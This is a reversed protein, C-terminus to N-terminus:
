NCAANLALAGEASTSPGPGEHVNNYDAKANCKASSQEQISGNLGCGKLSYIGLRAEHERRQQRLRIDHEERMHRLKLDQEQRYYAMKVEQEMQEFVLLRVRVRVDLSLWLFLRDVLALFAGLAEDGLRGYVVVVHGLVHGLGLEFEGTWLAVLLLHGM